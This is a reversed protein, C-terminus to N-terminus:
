MENEIIRRLRPQFYRGEKTIFPYEIEAIAENGRQEIELYQLVFSMSTGSIRSGNELIFTGKNKGKEHEKIKVKAEKLVKIKYFEYDNRLILGEQNNKNVFDWGESVSDFLIQETIFPSNIKRIMERLRLQRERYSGIPNVFDIPMFKAICWNERRSVDFVNGGEIYMEGYVEDFNNKQLIELIHIFRDNRKIGRASIINGNKYYMLTGDRKLSILFDTRNKVEDISKETIDLDSM